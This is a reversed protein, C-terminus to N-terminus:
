QRAIGVRKKVEAATEAFVDHHEVEWERVQREADASAIGYCQEVKAVLKNRKGSIDRLHEDTLRDWQQKVMGKFNNWNSEMHEWNM